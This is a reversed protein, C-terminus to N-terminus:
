VMRMNPPLDADHLPEYQRSIQNPLRFDWWEQPLALLPRNLKAAAQYMAHDLVARNQMIPAPHLHDRHAANHKAAANEALYDFPTGMDLLTGDMTELSVDVAMARPHGGAGPLSLLRPENLWHPNNQVRETKLMKEQAEVTRLGDYLVMRLNYDEHCVKAAHLVIDALDKHLWLKAEPRYIAEGFLFNDARAYALDIRLPLLETVKDMSVLQDPSIKLRKTM